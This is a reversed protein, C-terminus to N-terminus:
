SLTLARLRWATAFYFTHGVWPGPVDIQDGEPARWIIETECTGPKIRYLTKETIGYIGGPGPFICFQTHLAIPGLDAALPATAVIRRAAPDVLALRPELKAAGMTDEAFRNNAIFAYVLGDAAPAFAQVSGLAALGFDGAYLQRDARPNPRACSRTAGPTGPQRAAAKAEPNRQIHKRGQGHV